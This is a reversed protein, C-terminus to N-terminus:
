ALPRNLMRPAFSRSVSRPMNTKMYLYWLFIHTLNIQLTHVLVVHLLAGKITSYVLALTKRNLHHGNSEETFLLLDNKKFLHNAYFSSLHVFGTKTKVTIRINFPHVHMSCRSSFLFLFFINLLIHFHSVLPMFEKRYTQNIMYICNSHLKMLNFFFIYICIQRYFLLPNWPYSTSISQIDPDPRDASSFWNKKDRFDTRYLDTDRDM